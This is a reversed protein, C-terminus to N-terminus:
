EGAQRGISTSRIWCGSPAPTPTELGPWRTSRSYGLRRACIWSWSGERSPRPTVVGAVQALVHDMIDGAGSDIVCCARGQELDAQILRYMLSSKGSGSQGLVLMHKARDSATLVLPRGPEASPNSETEITQGNEPHSDTGPAAAWPLVHGLLVHGIPLPVPSASPEPPEARRRFSGVFLPRLRRLDNILFTLLSEVLAIIM